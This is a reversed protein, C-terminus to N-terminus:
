EKSIADSDKDPGFQPVAWELTRLEVGPLDHQFRKRAAADDENWDRMIYVVKLHPLRALNPAARGFQALPIQAAVARHLWDKDLVSETWAEQRPSAIDPDMLM